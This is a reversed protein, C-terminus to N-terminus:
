SAGEPNVVDVCYRLVVIDVNFLRAQVDLGVANTVTVTFAIGVIEVVVGAERLPTPVTVKPAVADEPVTLQYAADM